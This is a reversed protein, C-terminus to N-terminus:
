ETMGCILLNKWNLAHIKNTFTVETPIDKITIIHIALM